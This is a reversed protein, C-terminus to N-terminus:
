LWKMWKFALLSLVGCVIMILCLTLFAIPSEEGPIGGVNVGLLGTIFTLPLFLTAVLGLRYVNHNLRENTREMIEETAMTARTITTDLDELYRTLRDANERLLSLDERSLWSPADKELGQLMDRQPALYRRLRIGDRRVLSVHPKAEMVSDSALREEQEEMLEVIEQVSPAMMACIDDTMGALLEGPTRAGRGDRLEHRLKRVSLMRYMRATVIIQPTFWCRVSILESPDAGENHNVGRLILVLGDDFRTARPRTNETLMASVVLPPIREEREMWSAARESDRAIHTWLVGQSPDWSEVGDWGVEKAGGKGDLIAAFVLGNESPAPPDSFRVLAPPEPSRKKDTIAM